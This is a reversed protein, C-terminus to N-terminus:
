GNADGIAVAGCQACRIPMPSGLKPQTQQWNGFAQDWGNLPADDTDMVVDCVHHGNECVVREGVYHKKGSIGITLEAM